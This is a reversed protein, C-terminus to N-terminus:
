QYKDTTRENCFPFEAMVLFCIMENFFVFFVNSKDKEEKSNHVFLQSFLSLSDMPSFTM